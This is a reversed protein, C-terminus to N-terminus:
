KDRLCKIIEAGALFANFAELRTMRFEIEELYYMAHDQHSLVTKLMVSIDSIEMM